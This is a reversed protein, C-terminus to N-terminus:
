LISGVPQALILFITAAMASCPVFSPSPLCNYHHLEAAMAESGVLHAQQSLRVTKVEPCERIMRPVSAAFSDDDM